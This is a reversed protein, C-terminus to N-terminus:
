YEDNLVNHAEDAEAEPVLLEFIGDNSSGVSRIKVLFGESSLKDKISYADKEQHAIYIVTWM